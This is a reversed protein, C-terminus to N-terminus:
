LSSPLPFTRGPTRRTRSCKKGSIDGLAHFLALVRELAMQRVLLHEPAHGLINAEVCGRHTFQQLIPRLTLCRASAGVIEVEHGLKAREFVAALAAVNEVVETIAEDHPLEDACKLDLFDALHDARQATGFICLADLLLM